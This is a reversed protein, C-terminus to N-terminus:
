FSTSSLISVYFPFFCLFDTCSSTDWPICPTTFSSSNGHVPFSGWPLGLPLQPIESFWAFCPGLPCVVSFAASRLGYSAWPSHGQGSTLSPSGLSTRVRRQSASPLTPSGLFSGCLCRGLLSQGAPCATVLSSFCQCLNWPCTSLHCCPFYASFGSWHM